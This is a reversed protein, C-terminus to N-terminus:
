MSTANATILASHNLKVGPAMAPTARAAALIVRNGTITGSNSVANAVDTGTAIILGSLMLGTGGDMDIGLSVETGGILVASGKTTGNAVSNSANINGANSVSPGALVVLGDTTSISAAATLGSAGAVTVAGGNGGGLVVPNGATAFTSMAGFFAAQQAALDTGNISTLSSALFGGTNVMAGSGIAVGDGNLIWVHGAASITGNITSGNTGMGNGLVRNVLIAQGPTTVGVGYTVGFTDTAGLNFSDWAIYGRSATQNVTTTGAVSTNPTDVGATPGTSYVPDAWAVNTAFPLGASLAILSPWVSLLSRSNRGRNPIITM